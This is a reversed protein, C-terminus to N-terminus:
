LPIVVVVMLVQCAPSYTATPHTGINNSLVSQLRTQRSKCEEAPVLGACSVVHAAEVLLEIVWNERELVESLPVIYVVFM